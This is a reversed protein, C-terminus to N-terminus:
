MRIYLFRLFLQFCTGCPVHIIIKYNVCQLYFINYLYICKINLFFIKREVHFMFCYKLLHYIIISEILCFLNLVFFLRDFYQFYLLQPYVHKVHFMFCCKLLHYIIISEILCFLNLVFFLRNFYQFYLLQPYGHEVHFM